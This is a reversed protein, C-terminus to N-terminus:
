GSADSEMSAGLHKKLVAQLEKVGVPKVLFASAGNLRATEQDSASSLASLVVVPIDRTAPSAHLERLMEFGSKGPMMIDLLILRVPERLALALGEEASQATIAEFGAFSVARANVLRVSDEDEIILVKKKRFPM